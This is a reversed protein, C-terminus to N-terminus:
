LFICGSICLLKKTTQCLGLRLVFLLFSPACFFSRLVFSFSLLSAVVLDALPRPCSLLFWLSLGFWWWLCLHVSLMNIMVFLVRGTANSPIKISFLPQFRFITARSVVAFDLGSANNEKTYNPLLWLFRYM